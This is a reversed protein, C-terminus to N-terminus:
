DSMDTDYGSQVGSSRPAKNDKPQYSPHMTKLHQNLNWRRSFGKKHRSCRKFPCVLSQTKASETRSSAAQGIRDAPSTPRKEISPPRSAPTSHPPEDGEMDDKSSDLDLMTEMFQRGPDEPVITHDPDEGMLASFRETARRLVAAPLGIMAAIGAVDTWNTLSSLDGYNASSLTADNRSTDAGKGRTSSRRTSQSARRIRKRGRSFSRGSASRMRSKRHSSERKRTSNPEIRSESETRNDKSFASSRESALSSSRARKRGRSRSRSSRGADSEPAGHFRHIGMLLYEFQTIVNRALPRLKRRAVDDDIQVVPRLSQLDEDGEWDTDVAETDVAEEGGSQKDINMEQEAGSTPIDVDPHAASPRRSSATTDWERFQFREKATRLMYAIINEELEASPRADPKIRFTWRDDELRRLREDARPVEDSPMPWATWEELNNLLSIDDIELDNLETEGQQNVDLGRLRVLGESQLVHANFLHAALDRARTEQLAGAIERDERTLRLWLHAPGHFRNPRYPRLEIESGPSSRTKLIPNPSTESLARPISDDKKQPFSAEVDSTQIYDLDDDSEEYGVNPGGITMSGDLQDPAGVKQLCSSQDQSATGQSSGGFLSRYPQASPPVNAFQSRDDSDFSM